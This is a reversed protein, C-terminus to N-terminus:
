IYTDVNTVRSFNINKNNNTGLNFEKALNNDQSFVHYHHCYALFLFYPILGFQRQHTWKPIESVSLSIVSSGHDWTNEAVTILINEL